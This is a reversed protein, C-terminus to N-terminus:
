FTALSGGLGATVRFLSTATDFLTTAITQEVSVLDGPALRLNENGDHKAKALSVQIVAPQPMDPLQRIVYVKDALPSKVGGALAIADLLTVDKNRPLELQDPKQVLGTVHILRKDDPLVMVVDRDGLGYNPSRMPEAQALDIRMTQPLPSSMAM